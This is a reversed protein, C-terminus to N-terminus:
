ACHCKEGKVMCSVAAYGVSIAAIAFGVVAAAPIVTLLSETIM